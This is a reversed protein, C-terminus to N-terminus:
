KFAIYSYLYGTENIYSYCYNPSDLYGSSVKFGNETIELAKLNKWGLYMGQTVIGGYLLRRTSAPSLATAGLAELTTVNSSEEIPLCNSVIVAKPKFGLVIEQETQPLNKESSGNGMYTGIVVAGLDEINKWQPAGDKQTLVSESTPPTLQSLSDTKDAFIVGNKVWSGKGTGGRLVSLTGTSIDQASHSHNKAAAGVQEATCVHPNSRNNMHDTFHSIARKIKGFLTSATEGSEINAFDTAQTFTPIQDSPSLNPVNGLGVQEKTVNHPNNQNATHSDFDEKSAYVLSSSIAATVNEADGIFILADFQMELIRSDKSPVYDATEENENGIAYLIEKTEDNPDKAFFGAETIHFGNTVSANTFQATLTVYETGVVIKSLNVTVLPNSLATIETGSQAAGNGLQIKTFTITEGALAMLLLNKGAETLKPTM